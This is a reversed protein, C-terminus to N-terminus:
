KKKKFIKMLLPIIYRLCFILAQFVIIIVLTVIVAVTIGKNFNIPNEFKVLSKAMFYGGLIGLGAGIIALVTLYSHDFLSLGEDNEKRFLYVNYVNLGFFLVVFVVFLVGIGVNKNDFYIEGLLLCLALLAFYIANFIHNFKFKLIRKASDKADNVYKNNSPKTEKKEKKVPAVKGEKGIWFSYNNDGYYKLYINVSKESRLVQYGDNWSGKTNNGNDGNEKEDGPRIVENDHYFKIDDDKNVKVNKVVYQEQCYGMNSTSSLSYKNEGIQVVYGMLPEEEKIPTAEVAKEEVPAEEPAPEEKIQQNFAYFISYSLGEKALLIKKTEECKDNLIFVIFHPKYEELYDLVSNIKNTLAEESEKVDIDKLTLLKEFLKKRLKKDFTAIDFSSIIYGVDKINIKVQVVDFIKKEEENLLFVWKSEQNEYNLKLLEKILEDEFSLQNLNLGFERGQLNEQNVFKM